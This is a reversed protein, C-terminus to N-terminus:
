PNAGTDILILPSFAYFSREYGDEWSFDQNSYLLDDNCKPNDDECCTCCNCTIKGCDTFVYPVKKKCVESFDGTINNKDLGLLQLQTSSIGRPLVGSFQNRNLLLFQLHPHEWLSSPLTGKMDNYSVDLLVLNPLSELWLKPLTGTRHTLSLSLERLHINDSLFEPIPGAAFDNQSLFLFSLSKMTALTVPIDGMLYNATVDLHRLGQLESITEPLSGDLFNDSLSLYKLQWNEKMIDPLGGMLKNSGLHLVKLHPFEFLHRPIKTSDLKNSSIDAQILKNLGHLFTDDVTGTFENKELYLYELNQLDNIPRMSSEFSNQALSLTKLNSLSKLNTPITGNMQNNSLAFEKLEVWAEGIWEPFTGRLQNNRVDFFTMSSLRWFEVPITGEINNRNFDIFDLTVLHALESPLNGNLNNRALYYM